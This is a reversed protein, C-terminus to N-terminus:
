FVNKTDRITFARSRLHDEGALLRVEAAQLDRRFGPVSANALNSSQLTDGHNSLRMSTLATHVLKDM